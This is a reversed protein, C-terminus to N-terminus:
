FMTNDNATTEPVDQAVDWHEVIKGDVLRYIDVMAVGRTEGPKQDWFVQAAVLDGQAVTRKVVKRSGPYVNTLLNSLAMIAADKGDPLMPNHQKFTSGVYRGFGEKVQHKNFVTEEFALVTHTNTRVVEADILYRSTACGTTTTVAGVMLAGLLSRMFM